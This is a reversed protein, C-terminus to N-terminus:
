AHALDASEQPDLAHGPGFPRDLLAHAVELLVLLLQGHGLELLLARPAHLAAHGEAV